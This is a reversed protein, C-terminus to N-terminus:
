EDGVMELLSQCLQQPQSLMAMHDADKIEKVKAVGVNNNEILWRQFELPIALDETCIIYGQKVSGYGEDSFKKAKSMDETFFSSPRVLMGALAIDEPSCLQYLKKSLFQPGFFLSMQPNEPTGYPLFQTDLWAKASTRENYKDLVYSVPHVTDPMFATLFVALSIKSPYNEMALAINMGGFSHGVLIVKEGGDPLAAMFETLPLTYDHLTRLDKLQKPNVGAASLDLATVKNGASELLPKLKYWCWAGHGSGHVLVFHKQTM